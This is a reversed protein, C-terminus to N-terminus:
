QSGMGLNVLCVLPCWLICLYPVGRYDEKFCSDGMQQKQQHAASKLGSFDVITVSSKNCVGFYLNEIHLKSLSMFHTVESTTFGRAYPLAM